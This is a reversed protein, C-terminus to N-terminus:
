LPAASHSLSKFCRCKNGKKEPGNLENRAGSFSSRSPPEEISTSMVNPKEERMGFPSSPGKCSLSLSPFPSIRFPAEYMMGKKGPRYLRQRHQFKPPPSKRKKPRSEGQHEEGRKGLKKDQNEALVKEDKPGDYARERGAGRLGRGTGFLCTHLFTQPPSPLSSPPPPLSTTPPLNSGPQFLHFSEDGTKALARAEDHVNCYLGVRSLFLIDTTEVM